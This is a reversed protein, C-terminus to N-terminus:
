KAEPHKALFAKIADQKAFLMNWHERKLTVPWRGPIACVVEGSKKGISLGDANPAANALTHELEAIRALAQELKAFDDATTSM